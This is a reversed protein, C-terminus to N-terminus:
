VRGVFTAIVPENCLADKGYGETLLFHPFIFHKVQSAYCFHYIITLSEWLPEKLGDVSPVIILDKRLAGQKYDEILLLHVFIFYKLLNSYISIFNM